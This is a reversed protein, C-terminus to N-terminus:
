RSMKGFACGGERSGEEKGVERGIGGGQMEFVSWLELKWARGRNWRRM